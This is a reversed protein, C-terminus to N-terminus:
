SRLNSAIFGDLWGISFTSGIFGTLGMVICGVSGGSIGGTFAGGIAGNFGGSAAGFGGSIGGIFGLPYIPARM